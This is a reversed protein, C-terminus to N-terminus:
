IYDHDTPDDCHISENTCQRILKHCGSCKKKKHCDCSKRYNKDKAKCGYCRKSKTEYKEIIETISLDLNDMAEQLSKMIGNIKNMKPKIPIITVKTAEM